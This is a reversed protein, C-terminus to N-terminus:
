DLEITEVLQALNGGPNVEACTNAWWVRINTTKWAMKLADFLLDRQPNAADLILCQDNSACTPVFGWGGGPAKILIAGDSRVRMNDIARYETWGDALISGSVLLLLLCTVYRM